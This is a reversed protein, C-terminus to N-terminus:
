LARAWAQWEASLQAFSKQLVDELARVTRHHLLAQKEATSGPARPYQRLRAFVARLADEGYCDLLYAVVLRAHRYYQEAAKAPLRELQSTGLKEWSWLANPEVPPLADNEPIADLLAALHEALGEHLWYAANDNTLEALMQHVMEHIVASHYFRRGDERWINRDDVLLKISEGEEYWGAVWAPLSLKVSQRFWDKDGYLKLVLPRQPQWGYLASLRQRADGARQLLEEALPLLRRHTLKALVGNGTVQFFPLDADKWGDPTSRFRIPLRVRFTERGDTVLQEVCAIVDHGPRRSLFQRVFRRYTKGQIYAVADAAWRNQEQWYHPDSRDITQMYAATDGNRLAEEQTRVLQRIATRWAGSYEERMAPAGSAVAPGGTSVSIWAWLLLLSAIALLWPKVRLKRDLSM